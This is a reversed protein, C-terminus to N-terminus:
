GGLFLYFWPPSDRAQSCFDPRSSFVRNGSFTLRRDVGNPV